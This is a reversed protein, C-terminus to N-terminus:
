ATTMAMDGWEFLLSRQLVFLAEKYRLCPKKVLSLLRTQMEIYKHKFFRHAM